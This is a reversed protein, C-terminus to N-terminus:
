RRPWGVVLTMEEITEEIQTVTVPELPSNGYGLAEAIQWEGNDERQLMVTAPVPGDWNYFYTEGALVGNSLTTVCNNMEEGEQLLARGTTLPIMNRFAPFPPPPFKIKCMLRACWRNGRLIIDGLSRVDSFSHAIQRKLDQNLHPFV